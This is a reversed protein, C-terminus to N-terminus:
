DPIELNKKKKGKQIKVGGSRAANFWFSTNVDEKAPLDLIALKSSKLGIEACAM